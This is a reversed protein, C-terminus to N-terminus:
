DFVGFGELVDALCPELNDRRRGPNINRRTRVFVNLGHSPNTGLEVYTPNRFDGCDITFYKDNVSQLSINDLAKVVTSFNHGKVIYHKRHM